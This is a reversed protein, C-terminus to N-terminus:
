KEVLLHHYSEDLIKKFHTLSGKPIIISVLANCGNFASKGISKLSDPLVVENLSKCGRFASEDISVIEHPLVLRGTLSPNCWILVDDFCVISDLVNYHRNSTEIVLNPNRPFTSSINVNLGNPIKILDVENCAEFACDGITKLSDPFEIEKLSICFQFANDGISTVGNPIKISELGTCWMFARDGITKLSDPLVVNKLHKFHIFTEESITKVTNPIVISELNYLGSLSYKDIHTISSSLTLHTIARYASDGLDIFNLNSFSNPLTLSIPNSCDAFAWFSCFAIGEPIIVEGSKSPNCWLLSSDRLLLGDQYVLNQIYIREYGLDPYKSETYSSRSSNTLIDFEGCFATGEITWYKSKVFSLNRCGAFASLEIFDISDPIIVVGHKNPHCWVLTDNYYLVSDEMIFSPSNISFNLKESHPFAALGVYHLDQPLYLIRLSDCNDFAMAGIVKIKNGVTVNELSKCLRFSYEGISQVSPLSLSKLSHCFDFVSQGIRVVNSLDSIAILSECCSFAGDDIVTISKPLTIKKLICCNEFAYYGVQTVRYKRQNKAPTFAYTDINSKDFVADPIVTKSISIEPYKYPHQIDLYTISVSVSDDNITYYITDGHKNIAYFDPYRNMRVVADEYGQKASRQYWYLMSDKQYTKESEYYQGLDYQAAANGLNASEKLLPYEKKGPINWNTTKAYRYLTTAYNTKFSENVNLNEFALRYYYILSDYYLSRLVDNPCDRLDNAVILMDYHQINRYLKDWASQILHEVGEFKPAKQLILFAEEVRGSDLLDKAHLMISDCTTKDILFFKEAQEQIKSTDRFQSELDRIKEDYEKSKQDLKRIAEEYKKKYKGDILNYYKMIVQERKKADCMLVEFPKDSVTYNLRAPDFIVYRRKDKPRFNSSVASVAKVNCNRDLEFSGDLKTIKSDNLLEVRVDPLPDKKMDLDYLLVVGRLKCTGQGLCVFGTSILLFILLFRKM